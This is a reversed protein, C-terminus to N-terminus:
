FILMKNVHVAYIYIAFRVKYLKAKRAGEKGGGERERERREGMGKEEGEGESM